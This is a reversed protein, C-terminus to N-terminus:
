LVKSMVLWSTGCLQLTVGDFDTSITYTSGGAADPFVDSGSAVISINNTTADGSADKVRIIDGDKVRNTASSPLTLENGSSSTDYMYSGGAVATQSGSVEYCREPKFEGAVAWGQAGTGSGATLHVSGYPRNIYYVEAGGILHSAPTSATIAIPYDGAGGDIDFVVIDGNTSTSNPITITSAAAINAARVALIRRDAATAQNYTTANVVTSAWRLKNITAPGTVTLGNANPMSIAGTEDLLLVESAADNSDYVNFTLVDSAYDLQYRTGYVSGANAGSMQVDGGFSLAVYDELHVYRRSWTASDSLGDASHGPARFSVGGAVSGAALRGNGPLQEYSWRGNIRAGFAELMLAPPTAAVFERQEADPSRVFRTDRDLAPPVLLLAPISDQLWGRTYARLAEVRTDDAREFVQDPPRERAVFTDPDPLPPLRGPPPPEPPLPEDQPPFADPIFRPLAVRWRMLGDAFGGRFQDGAVAHQSRDDYRLTVLADVGFDTPQQWRRRDFEPPADFAGDDAEWPAALNLHGQVHTVRGGGLRGSGVAHKESPCAASIPGGGSEGAYGIRGRPLERTEIRQLSGPKGDSTFQGRGALPVGPAQGWALAVSCGDAPSIEGITRLASSLTATFESDVAGSSTLDALRTSFDLADRRISGFDSLLTNTFAPLVVPHQSYNESAAAVVVPWKDPLPSSASRTRMSEIGLQKQGLFPAGDTTTFGGGPSPPLGGTSITTGGREVTSSTLGPQPTFPSAAGPKPPFPDAAGDGELTAPVYSLDAELNKDRIPLLLTSRYAHRAADVTAVGTYSPHSPAWRGTREEEDRSLDVSVGTNPANGRTTAGPWFTMGVWRGPADGGSVLGTDPNFPLSDFADLLPKKVAVDVNQGVMARTGSPSRPYYLGPKDDRVYHDRFM